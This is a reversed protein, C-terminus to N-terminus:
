ISTVLWYIVWFAIHSLYKLLMCSGLALTRPGWGLEAVSQSPSSPWAACGRGRWLCVTSGVPRGMGTAHQCCWGLMELSATSRRASEARVASSHECVLCLPLELSWTQLVPLNQTRVSLLVHIKELSVSEDSSCLMLSLLLHLSPAVGGM